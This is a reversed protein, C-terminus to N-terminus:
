HEDNKILHPFDARILSDVTKLLNMGSFKEPVIPYFDDGEVAEIAMDRSANFKHWVLCLEDESEITIKLEIPEFKKESKNLEVKM